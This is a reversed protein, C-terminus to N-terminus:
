TKAYKWGSETTELNGKVSAFGGLTSKKMCVVVRRLGQDTTRQIQWFSNPLGDAISIHSGFDPWGQNVSFIVEFQNVVVDVFSWFGKVVTIPHLYSCAPLLAHLHYALHSLCAVQASTNILHRPPQQNPRRKGTSFPCQYQTKEHIRLVMRLCGCISSACEGSSGRKVVEFTEGRNVRIETIPHFIGKWGVVIPDSEFLLLSVTIHSRSSILGVFFWGRAGIKDSKFFLIYFANRWDKPPLFVGEHFDNYPLPGLRQFSIDRLLETYTLIPSKKPSSRAAPVANSLLRTSYGAQVLRLTFATFEKVVIPLHLSAVCFLFIVEM